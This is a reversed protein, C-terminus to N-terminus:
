DEGLSWIYEPIELLSDFDIEAKKRDKSECKVHNLERKFKTELDNLIVV